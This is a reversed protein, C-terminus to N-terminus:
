FDLHISVHPRRYRPARYYRPAPAYYYRSRYYPRYGYDYSRYGRNYSRYGSGGYGRDYGSYGRDYGYSGRYPRYSEYTYRHGCSRSHRHGAQAEAPLALPVAVSLVLAGALSRIRM